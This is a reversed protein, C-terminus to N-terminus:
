RGRAPVEEASLRSLARGFLRDAEHFSRVAAAPDGGTALAHFYPERPCSYHTAGKLLAHIKERAEDQLRKAKDADGAWQGLEYYPKAFLGDCPYYRGDAGLIVDAECPSAGPYTSSVNTLEVAGPPLKKFYKEFGDLAAALTRLAAPTWKELVDLHFSLRRFGRARLWEVNRLLAPATDAKLVMNVRLPVGCSELAKMAEEHSSDKSGVLPRHRDHSEAAGDLSVVLRAGADSLEKLVEPCARTGNTAISVPARGGVESLIARVLDIHILPEGGLLTVQGKKGHEALHERVAKRAAKEPLVTAPGKNLSLWCYDCALNCRDSLFVQLNM